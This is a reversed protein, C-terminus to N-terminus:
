KSREADIGVDASLLSRIRGQRPRYIPGTVGAKFLILLIFLSVRTGPHVLQQISLSSARQDLELDSGPGPDGSGSGGAGTFVSDHSVSM